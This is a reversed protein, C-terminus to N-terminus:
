SQRLSNVAAEDQMSATWLLSEPKMERALIEHLVSCAQSWEEFDDATSARRRFRQVFSQFPWTRLDFQLMRGKRQVTVIIMVRVNPFHIKFCGHCAKGTKPATVVLGKTQLSDGIRQLLPLAAPDRFMNRREALETARPARPLQFSFRSKVRSGWLSFGKDLMLNM